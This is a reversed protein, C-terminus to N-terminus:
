DLQGMEVLESEQRLTLVQRLDAQAKVLDQQMKTRAERVATLAKKFDDTSSSQNALTTRLQAMAKDLGTMTNNPGSGRASRTQVGDNDGGPGGFGGGFMGFMGLMGQVRGMLVQQNLEMLKQLRPEIIKWEADNKVALREKIREMMRQRIQAPDFGGRQGDEQQAVSLGGTLLTVVCATVMIQLTRRLM